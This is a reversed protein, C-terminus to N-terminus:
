LFPNISECFWLVCNASVSQSLDSFPIIHIGLIMLVLLINMVISYIRLVFSVFTVFFLIIILSMLLLGWLCSAAASLAVTKAARSTITEM